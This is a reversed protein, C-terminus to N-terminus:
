AARKQAAQKTIQYSLVIYIRKLIMLLTLIFNVTLFVILATGFAGTYAHVDPKLDPRKLSAVEIMIVVVLAISVLVSYAINDHLEKVLDGRTRSVMSPEDERVSFTFVLLLLNLLLGAFIAFAALLSNLVDSDFRWRFYAAGAGALVPLGYFTVIDVASYRGSSHDRMTSFHSKMIRTVDIKM